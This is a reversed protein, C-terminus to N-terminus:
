CASLPCYYCELCTRDATVLCCFFVLCSINTRLSASAEEICSTPLGSATLVTANKSFYIITFRLASSIQLVRFVKISKLSTTKIPDFLRKTKFLYGLRITLPFTCTVSFTFFITLVNSSFFTLGLDNLMAFPSMSSIKLFKPLVIVPSM